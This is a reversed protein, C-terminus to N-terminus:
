TVAFAAAIICVEMTLVFRYMPWFMLSGGREGGVSRTWPRAAFIAEAARLKLLMASRKVIPNRRMGATVRVYGIRAPRARCAYLDDM